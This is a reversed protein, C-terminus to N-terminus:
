KVLLINKRHHDNDAFSKSVFYVLTKREGSEIGSVEHPISCDNILIARKELKDSHDGQQQDCTIFEGDRYVSDFHFVM